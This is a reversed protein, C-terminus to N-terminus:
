RFGIQARSKLAEARDSVPDETGPLVPVKLKQALARAAVKDGMM